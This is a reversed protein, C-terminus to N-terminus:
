SLFEFIASMRFLNFSIKSREKEKLLLNIELKVGSVQVKVGNRNIVRPYKTYFCGWVGRYVFMKNSRKRKSNLGCDAWFCGLGDYSAWPVKWKCKREFIDKSLSLVLACFFNKLETRTSSTSVYSRNNQLYMHWTVAFSQRKQAVHPERYCLQAFRPKNAAYSRKVQYSDLPVM